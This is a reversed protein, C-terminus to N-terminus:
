PARFIRHTGIRRWRIASAGDLQVWEFTARGDPGSFSWTMESIGPAGVIAKVRLSGPWPTAPNAAFRDCAAVFTPLALKFLARQADSLRLYDAKFAGLVVYKM